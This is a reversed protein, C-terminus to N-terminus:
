DRRMLTRTLFRLNSSRNWLYYRSRHLQLCWSLFIVVLFPFLDSDGPVALLPPELALAAFVSAEEAEAHPIIFRILRLLKMHWASNSHNGFLFTLKTVPALPLPLLLMRWPRWLKLNLRFRMLYILILNNKFFKEPSTKPSKASLLCVLLYEFSCSKMWLPVSLALIKM